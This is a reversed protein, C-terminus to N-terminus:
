AYAHLMGNVIEADEADASLALKRLVRIQEQSFIHKHPHRYDLLVVGGGGGQETYIPYGEDELARIDRQITRVSVELEMALKPMTTRNSRLIKLIESQRNRASVTKV